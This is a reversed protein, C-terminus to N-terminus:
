TVAAQEVEGKYTWPLFRHPNSIAEKKNAILTVLYEFVNVGNLRCTMILSGLVAGVWAGPETKYFLSNKRVLIFQKLAREMANNDLPAGAVRLWLTLKAWHRLWYKLAGGLNSNPEVLHEDFRKEIWKKLAEMVLGSHEQHYRLRDEKSMELTAEENKYVEGIANLALECEDPYQDSLEFITRRGHALCGGENVKGKNEEIWNASLADAMQTPLPLGPSRLGLLDSMREGAHHRGNSFIAIKREGVNVLIGSTNTARTGEDTGAEQDQKMCSLIRVKTDDTHMVDGDAAIKKLLLFVRQGADAASECREWMTSPSFPMGCMSQLSSQREWPFGMGYRLIATTADCSPHYREEPSVGEPLPAVVPLDCRSCRLRESEYRTAQIPPIGTFQTFIKPEDTDYLRGGCLPAPCCDGAKLEPHRCKVVKGGPYAEAPRRGHGKKVRKAPEEPKNDSGREIKEADPEDEAMPERTKDKDSESNKEGSNNRRKETRWGFVLNRLRRLSLSKKQLLNILALLARLLRENKAKLDPDLNTAKIQDILAEIEEPNTKPIEEKDAM